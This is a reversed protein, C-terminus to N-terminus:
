VGLAVNRNYHDKSEELKEKGLEEKYARLM